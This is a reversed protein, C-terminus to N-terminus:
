VVRSPHRLRSLMLRQAKALVESPSVGSRFLRLATDMAVHATAEDGPAITESWRRMAAALALEQALEEFDIADERPNTM